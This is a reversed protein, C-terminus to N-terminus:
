AKWHHMYLRNSLFYPIQSERESDPLEWDQKHNIANSAVRKIRGNRLSLCIENEELNALWKILPAM